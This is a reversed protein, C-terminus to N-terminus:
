RTLHSESLSIFLYVAMVTVARLTTEYCNTFFICSAIAIFRM